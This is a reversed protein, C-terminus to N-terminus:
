GPEPLVKSGTLCFDTEYVAPNSVMVFLNQATMNKQKTVNASGSPIFQNGTVKSVFCSAAGHFVLTSILADTKHTATQQLFLFHNATVYHGLDGHQRVPFQQVIHVNLQLAPILHQIFGIRNHAQVLYPSCTAIQQFQLLNEGVPGTINGTALQYPVFVTWATLDWEM